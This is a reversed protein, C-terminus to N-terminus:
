KQKKASLFKHADRATEVPIEEMPVHGADDYVIFEAGPLDRKWQPFIKDYPVWIDKKGWMVLIPLKLDKIGKSLSEHSALEKMLTFVDVWASKNGERMMLEFYTDRTKQTIKTQDGYVESVAGYLMFRPMTIRAWPRIFFNSAFSLLFPPDQKYGVSDILILKEVKEPHRLAYNWSLYGGLSNGAISFKTLKLANVIKDYMSLALEVTITKGVMPGTLGFSPVDIRIIRYRDKLEKVWGDWTHLSACVGHMLLLVPGKGEDKYHIVTGDVDLYKSESDAYKAKLEELPISGIGLTKCGSIILAFFMIIVATARSYHIM